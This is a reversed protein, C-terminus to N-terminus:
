SQWPERPRTLHDKLQAVDAEFDADPRPLRNLLDLLAVGPVLSRRPPAVIAVIEGHRHVEVTEGAAVRSLLRSFERSAETASIRM